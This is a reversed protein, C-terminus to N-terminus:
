RRPASTSSAAGKEIQEAASLLRQAKQRSIGVEKAATSVNGGHRHLRTRLESLLQLHRFLWSARRDGLVSAWSESDASGRDSSPLSPRDPRTREQPPPHGHITAFNARGLTENGTLEIAARTAVGKLERINRPWDHLLLAEVFSARLRNASGFFQCFLRLIEERRERLPPLVITVGALRGLLDGRFREADVAQALNAQGAAILRVDVRRGSTQGLPVIVQDELVRLLKVQQEKPLDTIEDLLLTGGHAARFLGDSSQVAGTFAGRAHGFLHAEALSDPLAGCNQAVFAGKRGSREHILRAFVEKGTGTEGQLLIPTRTPAYKEVLLWADRSRPGVITGPHPQILLTGTEVCERPPSLAVGIWNGLRLVDGLTIAHEDIRRGNSYTGNHSNRDSLVFISGQRRISAHIRSVSNSELRVTASADRGVTMMGDIFPTFKERPHVWLIGPVGDCGPAKTEEETQTQSSDM